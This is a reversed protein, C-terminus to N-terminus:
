LASLRAFKIQSRTERIEDLGAAMHRACLGSMHGCRGLTHFRSFFSKGRPGNTTFPTKHTRPRSGVPLVQRLAIALPLANVRTEGAPGSGTHPLLDEGFQGPIAVVFVQHEIVSQNTDM